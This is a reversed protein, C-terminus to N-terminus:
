QFFSELKEVAKVLEDSYKQYSSLGSLGVIPDEIVKSMNIVSIGTNNASNIIDLHYASLSSPVSIKTAEKAFDQYGEGILLLENYKEVKGENQYSLLGKSVINLEDGIGNEKYKNFLSSIDQYYDAQAEYNNKENVIIQSETYTNNITPNAIKQGLAESFSSIDTPTVGESGKLSLYATFFERAFTETENLNSAENESTLNLAKKKNEIYENDSIGEFTFKKTKDTGWLNEEWDEIGDGDTDTGIIEYITKKNIELDDNRSFKEDKSFFYFVGFGLIIIILLFLVITQFQKSPLYPKIKNLNM